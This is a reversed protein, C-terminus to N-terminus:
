LLRYDKCVLRSLLLPGLADFLTSKGYGTLIDNEDTKNVAAAVAQGFTASYEFTFGDSAIKREPPGDM